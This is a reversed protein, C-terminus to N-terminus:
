LQGWDDITPGRPLCECSIRRAPPGCIRECDSQHFRRWSSSRRNQFHHHQIVFRQKHNRSMCLGLLFLSHAEIFRHYSVITSKGGDVVLVIDGSKFGGYRSGHLAATSEESMVVRFMRKTQSRAFYERLKQVSQPSFHAPHAVAFTVTDQPGVRKMLAGMRDQWWAELVADPDIDLALEKIRKCEKEYFGSTEDFLSKLNEFRIQATNPLWAESARQGTVFEKTDTNYVVLSPEPPSAGLLSSRQRWFSAGWDICVVIPKHPTHERRRAQKRRRRFNETVSPIQLM